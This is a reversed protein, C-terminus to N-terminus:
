TLIAVSAFGPSKRLMRGDMAFTKRLIACAHLALTTQVSSLKWELMQM